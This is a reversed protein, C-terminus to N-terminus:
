PQKEAGVIAELKLNAAQCKEAATIYDKADFAEAIEATIDTFVEKQVDQPPDIGKEQLDDASYVNGISKAMKGGDVQLFGNHM